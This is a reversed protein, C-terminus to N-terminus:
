ENKLRKQYTYKYIKEFGYQELIEPIAKCGHIDFEGLVIISGIDLRACLREFIDKVDKENLNFWFNRCLVLSNSPNIEDIKDIINAEEFQAYNKINRKLRMRCNEKEEGDIDNIEFYKDIHGDTNILIKKYDDKLCQIKDGKAQRIIEPDIDYAKIPFFKQAGEEGLEEILSIILSYTESGDSSAFNYVNVKPSNQFARAITKRFSKWGLYVDQLDLRFFNTYNSYLLRENQSNIIRRKKFLPNEGYVNRETSKFNTTFNIHSIKM